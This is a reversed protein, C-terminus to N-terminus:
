CQSHSEAWCNRLLIIKKVLDSNNGKEVHFFFLSKSLTSSLLPNATKPLSCQKSIHTKSFNTQM